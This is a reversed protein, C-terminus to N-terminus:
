IGHITDMFEMLEMLEMLEMIGYITGFRINRPHVDSPLNLIYPKNNKTTSFKGAILM